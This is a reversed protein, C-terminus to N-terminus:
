NDCGVGVVKRGQREKRRRPSVGQFLRQHCGGKLPFSNLNDETDELNKEMHCARAKIFLIMVGCSPRLSPRSAGEWLVQTLPSVKGLLFLVLDGCEDQLVM